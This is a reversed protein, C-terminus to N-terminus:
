HKHLCQLSGKGHQRIAYSCSVGTSCIHAQCMANSRSLHPMRNSISQPSLAGMLFLGSNYVETIGSVGCTLVDLM